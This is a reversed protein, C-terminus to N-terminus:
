RGGIAPCEPVLVTEWTRAFVVSGNTRVEARARVATQTCRVTASATVVEGGAVAQLYFVPQGPPGVTVATFRDVDPLDYKM